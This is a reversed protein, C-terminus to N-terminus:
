AAKSRYNQALSEQQLLIAGMSKFYLRRCREEAQSVQKMFGQAWDGNISKDSAPMPLILPEQLLYSSLPMGPPMNQLPPLPLLYSKQFDMCFTRHVETLSSIAEAFESKSLNGQKSQLFAFVGFLGIEAIRAAKLRDQLNLHFYYREYLEKDGTGLLQAIRLHVLFVERDFGKLWAVDAELEKEVLAVLEKLDSKKYKRGRFEFEGGKMKTDGSNLAKLLDDEKDRKHHADLWDKYQANYLTDLLTQIQAEPLKPLSPDNAYDTLSESPISLLRGDFLGLYRPDQAVENHEQDLFAQVQEPPALDFRRVEMMYQYFRETMRQRLQEPNSFLLWPSREDEVSRVYHQKANQERDFNSPHSAWMERGKEEQTEKTFLQTKQKPDDPLAPIAGFDPKDLTRRLHEAARTQHYFLDQTYLNHESADKLDSFAQMQCANVFDLKKLAHILSDSGTVSVAVLDAHFEMQRSLASEFFNIAKFALHLIGRLIWLVFTIAYAFISIRINFRRAKALLDDLADRQYVLDYIVRNAMYVYSGLRMSSQSFHGFEHAIVAKFESLNVGNVLGLGILLNKKVPMILSLVSSDYFVAANVEPTLFVKGPFPAKTDACIKRIFEFLEPHQRVNIELRMEDKQKRWKFLAKVLFLFLVGMVIALMWYSGSNSHGYSDVTANTAQLISYVVAWSSGVILSLYFLIFVFLSLLVIVVQRRYAKSPITLGAPVGQITPPYLSENIVSENMVTTEMPPLRFLVPM